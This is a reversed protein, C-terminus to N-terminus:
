GYFWSVPVRTVRLTHWPKDFREKYYTLIAMDGVFTCSGYSWAWSRDEELDRTHNWTRGEDTSVTCRLPTRRGQHHHKLDVNPNRILLLDGTSPIRKFIIPSQPAVISSFNPRVWTEGDDQSFSQGLFGQDTRTLMWLRGDKLEVVKPEMAGSKPLYFKNSLKWSHGEDDSYACAAFLRVNTGPDTERSKLTHPVIIRGNKLKIVCDNCLGRYRGAPACFSPPGFTRGDDSSHRMVMITDQESNRRGYFLLLNKPSLRQFSVAAVNMRGENEILVKPRTWSKGGDSSRCARIVASADDLSSRFDTFAMLLEGGALEIIDAEGTRQHNEDAEVLDIFERAADPADFAAPLTRMMDTTGLVCAGKLGTRICRRRTVHHPKFKM